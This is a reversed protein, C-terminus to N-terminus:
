TNLLVIALVGSIIGAIGYSGIKEKFAMCGVLVVLVISGGNALPFVIYGPMMSAAKLISYTGILSFMGAMTGVAVSKWDIPKRHMWMQIFAAVSAAGYLSVLFTGTIDKSMIQGIIKLGILAIGNAIFAIAMLRRYSM